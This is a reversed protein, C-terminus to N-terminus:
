VKQITKDLENLLEILQRHAEEGIQEKEIEVFKKLLWRDDEPSLVQDAMPYLINNEKDIHQTLLESYSNANKIIEAVANKDGSKFRKTAEDLGKIYGRGIEHEELMCGIPGGERPVGRKEMIPFLTDQEKGHHCKDSFIRTFKVAKEFIENPVKKGTELSDAALKLIGISREIEKHEDM